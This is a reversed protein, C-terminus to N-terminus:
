NNQAGNQIWQVMSSEEASSLHQDQLHAAYPTCGSNHSAFNTNYDTFLVALLYSNAPTSPVVLEVSGCTGKAVSGSVVHNMLSNYANTQTSFDLAAGDQAATITSVHCQTCTSLSNTYVDTFTGPTTSSKSCRIVVLIFGVAVLPAIWKFLRSSSHNRM